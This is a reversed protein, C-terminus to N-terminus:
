DPFGLAESDIVDRVALLMSLTRYWSALGWRESCNRGSSVKTWRGVFVMRKSRTQTITKRIIAEMAWRTTRMQADWNVRSRPFRITLAVM